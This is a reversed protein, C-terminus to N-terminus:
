RARPTLLLAMLLETPDMRPGGFSHPAADGFRYSEPDHLTVDHGTQEVNSAARYLEAGLVDAAASMMPLTGLGFVETHPKGTLNGHPCLEDTVVVVAIARVNEKADLCLLLDDLEQESAIRASASLHALYEHNLKDHAMGRFENILGDKIGHM